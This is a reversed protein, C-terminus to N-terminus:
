KLFDFKRIFYSLEQEDLTEIFEILEDRNNTYFYNCMKRLHKKDAIRVLYIAFSVEEYGYAYPDNNLEIKDM